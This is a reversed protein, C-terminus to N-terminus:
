RRRGWGAPRSSGASWRAGWGRRPPWPMVLLLPRVVARRMRVRIASTVPTSSALPAAAWAEKVSVAVTVWVGIDIPVAVTAAGVLPGPESVQRLGLAIM